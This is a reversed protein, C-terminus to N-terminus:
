GKTIRWGSINTINGFCEEGGGGQRGVRMKFGESRLIQSGDGYQWRKAGGTLKKAAQSSEKEGRDDKDPVIQQWVDWASLGVERAFQGQSHLLVTLVKDGGVEGEEVAVGEAGAGGADGGGEGAVPTHVPVSASVIRSLIAPVVDEDAPDVM